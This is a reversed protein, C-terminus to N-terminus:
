EINVFKNLFDNDFSDVVNKKRLNICAGRYLNYNLVIMLIRYCYWLEKVKDFLNCFQIGFWM